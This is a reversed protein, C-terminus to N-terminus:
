GEVNIFDDDGVMEWFKETLEEETKRDAEQLGDQGDIICQLAYGNGILTFPADRGPLAAGYSVEYFGMDMIDGIQGFAFGMHKLVDGLNIYSITQRM